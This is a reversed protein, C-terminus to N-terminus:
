NGRRWSPIVPDFVEDMEELTHGKTEPAALTMHMFAAASFAGFIYCRDGEENKDVVVPILSPNQVWM